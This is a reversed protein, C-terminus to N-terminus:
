VPRKSRTAVLASVMQPSAISTRRHVRRDMPIQLTSNALNVLRRIDCSEVLAPLAHFRPSIHAALATWVGPGGCKGEVEERRNQALDEREVRRRELEDEIGACEHELWREVAGARQEDALDRAATAEAPRCDEHHAGGVADEFFADEYM